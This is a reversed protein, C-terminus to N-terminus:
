GTADSLEAAMCFNLRVSNLVLHVPHQRDLTRCLTSLTTDVTELFPFGSEDGIVLVDFTEAPPVVQGGAQEVYRASDMPGLVACRMGTLQHLAFYPKLLEGSSIIREPDLALGYGRYRRAATTPLQSADNTLIYYAKGLRHLQAILEAAGPLAGNAHVLVGYADFLLVEYQDILAALTIDPISEM